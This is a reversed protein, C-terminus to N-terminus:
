YGFRMMLNLTDNQWEQMLEYKVESLIDDGKESFGTEDDYEEKLEPESVFIKELIEEWEIEEADDL